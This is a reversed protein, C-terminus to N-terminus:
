FPLRSHANTKLPILFRVFSNSPTNSKESKPAVYSLEFSQIDKTFFDPIMETLPFETSQITKGEEKEPEFMLSIIKKLASSGTFLFHDQDLTAM